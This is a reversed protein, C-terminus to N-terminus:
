RFSVYQINVIILNQKAQVWPTPIEYTENNGGIVFGGGYVFVLVPLSQKPMTAPCYVDLKLCDESQQGRFGFGPEYVDFINESPPVQYCGSSIQNANVIQSNRDAPRPASFRLQGTPPRAFPIGLYQYVDPYASDLLPRFAGSTTNVLGPEYQSSPHPAAICFSLCLICTSLFRWLMNLFFHIVQQSCYRRPM